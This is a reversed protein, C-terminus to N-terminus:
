LAFEIGGSCFNTKPSGNSSVLFLGFNGIAVSYPRDLVLVIDGGIDGDSPLCFEHGHCPLDGIEGTDEHLSFDGTDVHLIFDGTEEHLTFGSLEGTHISTRKKENETTKTQPFHPLLSNPTPYPM